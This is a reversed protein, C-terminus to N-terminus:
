YPLEDAGLAEAEAGALAVLVAAGLPLLATATLLLAAPVPAASRLRPFRGALALLLPPLAALLLPWGPVDYGFYSANTGALGLVLAMPLAAGRLAAPAPRLWALAAIAGCSAALFGSIQGLRASGLLFFLGACGGAYAALAPALVRAPFCRAATELQSALLGVLAAIAVVPLLLQDEALAHPVLKALLPRLMLAAVLAALFALAAPHSARGRLLAGGAGAVGAWYIWQWSSPELLGDVGFAAAFAAAFAVGVTAAGPMWPTAPAGGAPGAGDGSDAWGAGLWALLAAAGGPILAGYVLLEVWV